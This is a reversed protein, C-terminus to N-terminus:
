PSASRRPVLNVRWVASGPWQRVFTARGRLEDWAGPPAGARALVLQSPRTGTAVVFVRRTAPPPWACSGRRPACLPLFRDLSLGKRSFYYELPQLYPGVAAVRDGPRLRVDRLHDAIAEAHPAAGTGVSRLVSESRVVGVSLAGAIVVAAVPVVAGVAPRGSRSTARGLVYVIGAASAGLFLPLLYLWTRAFPAVRQVAPLGLAVVSTAAVPIWRYEKRVRAFLVGIVAAAVLAFVVWTPLDRIWGRWANKLFARDTRVWQEFPLPTTAKGGILPDLGSRLAVPAYLAVTLFATALGAPLIRTLVFRVGSRGDRWLVAVCLWLVIGAFPYLMIPVTYFGAAALVVFAPWHWRRPRRLISAGIAVLSIVTVDLIMYGRANASFEVLTSSASAFAAGLLAADKGYLQRLAVYTVPVLLVGAVFAPLRLSWLHDGFLGISAKALLTHFLHNNPISYDTLADGLPALVFDIYTRAEDQRVPQWLHVLRVWVGIATVCGLAVWHLRERTAAGM